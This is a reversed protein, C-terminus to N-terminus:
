MAMISLTRVLPAKIYLIIVLFVAYDLSMFLNARM